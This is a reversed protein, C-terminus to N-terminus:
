LTSDFTKGSSDFTNLTSDFSFEFTLPVSLKAGAVPDSLIEFFTATELIIDDGVGTHGTTSHRDLLFNAGGQFTGLNYGDIGITSNENIVNDDADTGTADYLLNGFIGGETGSEQQINTAEKGLDELVLADIPRSIIDSSYTYPEIDSNTFNEEPIIGKLDFGHSTTTIVEDEPILYQKELILKNNYGAGTENELLFSDGHTSSVTTGDEQKFSGIEDQEM